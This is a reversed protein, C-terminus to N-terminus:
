IPEESGDLESCFGLFTFPGVKWVTSSLIVQMLNHFSFRPM